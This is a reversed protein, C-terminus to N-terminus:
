QVNLLYSEVPHGRSNQLNAEFTKSHWCQAILDFEDIYRVVVLIHCIVPLPNKLEKLIHSNHLLKNWAM